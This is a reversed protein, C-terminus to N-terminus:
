KMTEKLRKYAAVADKEYKPWWWSMKGAWKDLVALNGDNPQPTPVPAPRSVPVMSTADGQMGLLKVLGPTDYAFRGNLGFSLGWSNDFWWLDRALDYERCLYEHGGRSVGSVKVVGDVGPNDMDALWSTGAIFAGKQIAAHAGEVSTIHQYGNNLGRGQFLKAISLGDSGTDDPEWSGEFPDARTVDRYAQVAFQEALDADSLVKQLGAGMTQWFGLTMLLGTAANPVCSGLNGQDLIPGHREWAVSRPTVKAGPAAVLYRLSRADHNINRGLRGRGPREALQLRRDAM